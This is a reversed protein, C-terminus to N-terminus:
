ESRPATAPAPTVVRPPVKAPATQPKVAPTAAPSKQQPAAAVNQRPAIDLRINQGPYITYPVPIKNHNALERYDLGYRWAISFLTEGRSVQHVTQSQIKRS